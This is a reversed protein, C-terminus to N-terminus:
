CKAKVEKIKTIAVAIIGSMLVTTLSGITKLLSINAINGYAFIPLGIILACIIGCYVGQETLKKGKLTLVTPLLTSARLTGYFLFLYTVTLGPINAIAIAIILLIVMTLKSAKTNDKFKLDTTLSAASCLNSDVTSLLGSLIMVLFPILAWSPLISKIYEFNIMSTDNAVFGAGAASFGIVSVLIPVLAFIAAGITFAKGLSKERISFVRQWFSQDGFPGSILGITTPLGFGLFVELAYKGSFEAYNGSIGGLGSLVSDLGQSHFLVMPVLVALSGIIFIIQLNDTIISAKIGSIQSYTFAVVALIVTWIWFPVGTILNLIKSGALLQVATSLVSLSSLQFLYIDKVKKSKYRHQMYGSLTIGEPLERRIKKAFPIFILLCLANPVLFWLFGIIGQSYAKEASTFLAPAWIWTAAISLAGIVTGINRDAVHFNSKKRSFFLTAAIMIVAYIALVVIGYMDNEGKIHITLLPSIRVIRREAVFFAGLM